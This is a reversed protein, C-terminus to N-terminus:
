IEYVSKQNYLLNMQSIFEPVMADDGISFCFRGQLQKLIGDEYKDLKRDNFILDNVKHDRVYLNELLCSPECGLNSQYSKCILEKNNLVVCRSYLNIAHVAYNVTDLKHWRLFLNTMYMAMQYSQPNKIFQKNDRIKDKRHYFPLTELRFDKLVFIDDSSVAFLDDKIGIDTHEVCYQIKYLMNKHRHDHVDDCKVYVVQDSLFGPDEGVVFVRDIDKCHMSISRLSWRLEINDHKSGKGLIYMLDM